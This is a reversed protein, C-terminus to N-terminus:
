KSESPTKIPLFVRVFTDQSMTGLLEPPKEASPLRGIWLRSPSSPSRTVLESANSAKPARGVLIIENKLRIRWSEDLDRMSANQARSAPPVFEHFMLRHLIEDKDITGARTGRSVSQNFNGAPTQNTFWDSIHKSELRSLNIEQAEGPQLPQALAYVSAKNTGTGYILYVNNLAVPLQNTITGTVKQPEKAIQLDAVFPQKPGVDRKWCADFSKMSWVQIPVGELGTADPAYQYARRFLSQSRSRGYGGYSTDPRGMWSMLVSAAKKEAPVEAAWEPAAPEIGLTYHQIRPSFLTFWTHGYVTQGQLDIDVLDAKNILLDNGKLAYATFYAAASVVIVVTPFTIWTLELRKVVKKLFFYDLPGVVLIYVFIFLAVWGFSINSVDPFVELNNRLWAGLDEDNRNQMWRNNINTGADSKTLSVAHESQFRKWFEPQGGWRSFPPQDLDFALLTVQGMGFAFRVALPHNKDEGGPILIEVNGESKIALKALEIPAVDGGPKAPVNEFRPAQTLWGELSPLRPLQMGGPVFEVPLATMGLSDLLKAGLDKNRGTSIVLRGGRRVWEAIAELQVKQGVLNSVFDANGTTIIMLDVPEFGFWRNPLLEFNDVYSVRASNAHARPNPLDKGEIAEVQAAISSRLSSLPTGVSLFMLDELPEAEYPDGREFIFLQSEKTKTEGRLTVKIASSISGPKTYSLATFPKRAELPPLSTIYNNQVDDSDSTEVILEGRELGGDGPEIDVWVPTFLGAKFLYKWRRDEVEGADLGARFGVRVDTIRTKVPKQAESASPVLMLGTLALMSLKFYRM